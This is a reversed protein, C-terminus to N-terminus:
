ITVGGVRVLRKSREMMSEKSMTSLTALLDSYLRFDSLIDPQRHEM